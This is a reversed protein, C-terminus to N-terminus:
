QESPAIQVSIGDLSGDFPLQCSLRSYPTRHGTGDLLDSEDSSIAPLLHFYAPDVTVHCTACSCNGGCLALLEDFGADRIAEMVSIGADHEINTASGEVSIVTMNPM